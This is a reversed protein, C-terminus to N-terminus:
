TLDDRSVLSTVKLPIEKAHIHFSDEIPLPSVQKILVM